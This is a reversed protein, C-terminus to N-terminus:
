GKTKQVFLFTLLYNRSSAVLYDMKDIWTVWFQKQINKDIVLIPKKNSSRSLCDLSAYVYSLWGCDWWCFCRKTKSDLHFIAHVLITIIMLYLNWTRFLGSQKSRAWLHSHFILCLRHLCLVWNGYIQSGHLM